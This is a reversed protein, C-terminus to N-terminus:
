RTASGAAIQAGDRDGDTGSSSRADPGSMPALAARQDTPSSWLWAYALLSGIGLLKSGDELLQGRSEGGLDNALVDTAASLGFLLVAAAPLPWPSRLLADRHVAAVLLGLGAFIAYVLKDGTGEGLLAPMVEDHILFVDDAAFLAMLAAVSLMAAGQASRRSSAMLVGVAGAMLLGGLTSLAGTWWPLGGTVQPERLLDPADVFPWVALLLLVALLPLLVLALTQRM